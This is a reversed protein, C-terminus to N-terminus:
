KVIQGGSFIASDFMTPLDYYSVTARVRQSTSGAVGVAEVIGGQQPLNVGSLAVGVNQPGTSSNGLMRIRMFITSNTPLGLNMNGSGPPNDNNLQITKSFSYSTSGCTASSTVVGSTIFNNGSAVPDYGMRKVYVKHARDQYFFAVEVKSSTAGTGGNWCVKVSTGPNAPLDVTAVDGEDLSYPVDFSSSNGLGTPAPITYSANISNVSTSSIGTSPVGTVSLFKELGVEAADLARSSEDQTTSVQVETVSRSAISMAVTAVVSLVLLTIILVQGSKM